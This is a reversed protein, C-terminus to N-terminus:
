RLLLPVHVSSPVIFIVPFVALFPDSLESLLKYKPPLNLIVKLSPLPLASLVLLWIPTVVLVAGVEPVSM